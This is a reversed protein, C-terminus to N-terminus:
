AADEQLVKYTEIESLDYYGATLLVCCSESVEHAEGCGSGGHV